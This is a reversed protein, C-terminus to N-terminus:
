AVINIVPVIIKMGPKIRTFNVDPNHQRLLWIPVKFKKAALHWLSEGRKITYTYTSEIRHDVFYQEQYQKQYNIRRREFEARTIRSFDLEIRRGVIVPTGFRMNNIQRLRSARLDLRVM